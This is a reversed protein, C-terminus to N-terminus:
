YRVFTPGLYLFIDTPHYPISLSRTSSSTSQLVATLILSLLIYAARVWWGVQANYKTLFARLSDLFGKTYQPAVEEIMGHLLLFARAEEVAVADSEDISMSLADQLSPSTAQSPDFLEKVGKCAEIFGGVMTQHFKRAQSISGYIEMPTSVPTVAAASAATSAATPSIRSARKSAKGPNLAVKPQNEAILKLSRTKHANILKDMVQGRPAEILRLTSVHHTLQSLGTYFSIM